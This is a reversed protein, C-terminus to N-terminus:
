FYDFLLIRSDNAKLTKLIRVQFKFVHTRSQCYYYIYIHVKLQKKIQCHLTHIPFKISHLKGNLFNLSPIINRRKSLSSSETEAYIKICEEKREM